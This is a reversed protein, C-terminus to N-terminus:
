ENTQKKFREGRFLDRLGPIIYSVPPRYDTNIIVDGLMGNSILADKGKGGTWKYRNERDPDPLMELVVRIMPTKGTIMRTLSSNQLEAEVTEPNIPAAGVERVLCKMYGYEGSPMAYPSFFASMGNKIKKGQDVPIFATLYLGNSADSAILALREGNQVFAGESKFIEAVKGNADATIWFAERYLKLALNKENEKDILRRRLELLRQESQWLAADTELSTDMAQVKASLLANETQLMQDLMQYYSMKSAAGVKALEEYVKVIESARGRSKEYASALSALEDKKSNEIKVKSQSFRKTGRELFVIESKLRFFEIEAQKIKFFMEPNYIQGIVDDARVESGVKVNLSSLTGTGGAVVPRVGGSLLTIGVGSVTEAMGAYFGWFMAASFFLTVAGLLFYTWRAKVSTLVYRQAAGEMRELAKPSFDIPM